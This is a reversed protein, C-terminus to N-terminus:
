RRAFVRTRGSGDFTLVDYPERHGDHEMGPSGMPMGPVAIGAVKPRETLLRRIVDAPVHGEITYDGIVATHCSALHDPVRLSTKVSAVDEVPIERIRFGDELLHEGWEHCCGCTPSMFIAIETDEVTHATRVGGTGSGALAHVLGAAVVALGIAAGALVIAGLKSM